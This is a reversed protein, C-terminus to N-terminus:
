SESDKIQCRHTLLFNGQDGGLYRSNEVKWGNAGEGGLGETNDVYARKEQDELFVYIGFFDRPFQFATM